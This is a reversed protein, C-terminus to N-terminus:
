PFRSTTCRCRASGSLPRTSSSRKAVRDNGLASWRSPKRPSWATPVQQMISPSIVQIDVRDCGDGQDAAAARDHAQFLHEPMADARRGRGAGVTKSYQSHEYTLKMVEARARPMCTSSSRSRHRVAPARRSEGAQARVQEQQRRAVPRKASRAPQKRTKRAKVM